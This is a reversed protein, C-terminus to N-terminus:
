PAYAAVIRPHKWGPATVVGAYTGGFRRALERAAAITPGAVRRPNRAAVTFVAREGRLDSPTGAHVRRGDAGWIVLHAAATADAAAPIATDDATTTANTEGAPPQGWVAVMTNDGTLQVSFGPALVSTSWAPQWGLLEYGARACQASSPLRVWSTSPGSISALSCTGGNPSITLSYTAPAPPPPTLRTVLAALLRDFHVVGLGSAMDYGPLAAWAPLVPSYGPVVTSGDFGFLDNSGATVDTIAGLSTDYLLRHIDMSGGANDIPPFGQATLAANVNAIGVAFSPAAASTGATREWAGNRILAYMPWAAMEAVDPVMRYGTNGPYNAQAADRQYGPMEFHRSQGGGGGSGGGSPGNACKSSSANDMWVNDDYTAGPSYPTTRGSVMSVSQSDWQTGGVSVVGPHAAPFRTTLGISAPTVTADTSCGGSTEDGSSFVMVVGLARLEDLVATAQQLDPPLTGTPYLSEETDTYSFSIICGGAPWNPAAGSTKKTMPSVHTDIGCADAATTITDAWGGTSNAMWLESNPPMAAAAVAADLTAEGANATGTGSGYLTIPAAPLGCYSLLTAVGATDPLQSREGLVLRQPLPSGSVAIPLGVVSAWMQPTIGTPLPTGASNPVCDPLGSPYAPGTFDGASALAPLAAAILGAALGLLVALSGRTRRM